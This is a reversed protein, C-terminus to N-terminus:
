VLTTVLLNKQELKCYGMAFSKIKIHEKLLKTVGTVNAEHLANQKMYFSIPKTEVTRLSSGHM